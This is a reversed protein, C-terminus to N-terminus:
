RSLRDSLGIKIDGPMSLLPLFDGLSREGAKSWQSENTIQALGIFSSHTTSNNATTNKSSRITNITQNNKHPKSDGPYISLTPTLTPNCQCVFFFTVLLVIIMGAVTFRWLSEGYNSLLHYWGTLSFINRRFWCNKKIEYNTEEKNNQDYKKTIKERYKRKLEMKRIFFRGAEDYRRFGTKRLNRYVSLIEELNSKTGKDVNLNNKLDEEEIVKFEGDKSWRTKGNFRIGTIDANM